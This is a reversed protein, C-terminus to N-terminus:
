LNYVQNRIEAAWEAPTRSSDLKEPPIPKGFKVKFTKGSAKVFESPLLIMALNFKIGLKKCLQATRYFLGSNRGEFHVPVIARGTSKSKTIFTKTWAIDQIRGDIIRSCLGAPFILMQKNSKFAEDLMGALERAQGGVKNIPIWMTRMPKIAMLFDNVPVAIDGFKEGIIGSLIIGDAGGLPHNSAFTYLTGDAPVNELGEVEVNIRMQKMVEKSFRWGDHETHNIYENLVGVRMIKGLTWTLWKPVGNPYKASLIEELNIHRPGLKQKSM